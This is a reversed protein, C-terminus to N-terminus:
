DFAHAVAEGLAKHGHPARVHDRNGLLGGSQLTRACHGRTIECRASRFDYPRFDDHGACLRGGRFGSARTPRGVIVFIDARLLENLGRPDQQLGNGRRLQGSTMDRLGSPNM